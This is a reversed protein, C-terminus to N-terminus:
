RDHSGVDRYKKWTGVCKLTAVLCARTYYGRIIEVGTHQTLTYIGSECFNIYYFFYDHPHKVDQKSQTVELM